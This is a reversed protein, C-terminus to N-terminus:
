VDQLRVLPILWSRRRQLKSAGKNSYVFADKVVVTRGNLTIFQLAKGRNDRVNGGESGSGAATGNRLRLM